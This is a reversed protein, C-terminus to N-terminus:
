NPLYFGYSRTRRPTTILVIVFCEVMADSRPWTSYMKRYPYDNYLIPLSNPQPAPVIRLRATEKRLYEVRAECRVTHYFFRFCHLIHVIRVRAPLVIVAVSPSSSLSPLLCPAWVLEDQAVAARCTGVPETAPSASCAM